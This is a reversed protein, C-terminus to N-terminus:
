TVFFPKQGNPKRAIDMKHANNVINKHAKRQSVVCEKKRMGVTMVEDKGWILKSRLVDHSGLNQHQTNNQCIPPKTGLMGLPKSLNSM